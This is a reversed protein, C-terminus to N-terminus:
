DEGVRGSFGFQLCQFCLFLSLPRRQVADKWRLKRGWSCKDTESKKSCTEAVIEPRSISGMLASELCGSGPRPTPRARRGRARCTSRTRAWMCFGRCTRFSPRPPPEHAAFHPSSLLNAPSTCSHARLRVNSYFNRHRTPPDTHWLRITNDSSCTFFSSPPLCAQSADSLEPYVQSPHLPTLGSKM